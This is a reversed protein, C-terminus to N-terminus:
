SKRGSTLVFSSLSRLYKPRFLIGDIVNYIPLLRHVMSSAVYNYQLGSLYNTSVSFGVRRFVQAVQKAIIPRENETVGKASYFPSTRDRYLYMFPNLRNPDFAFFHGGPKLVRYVERACHSPDPLHHILGSLLVGGLSATPFPLAEVDGAVFKAGPFRERGMRLLGESLDLGICRYGQQQLLGTFAGSGCGMDIVPADESLNGAEIFADVIKENSAKSFVDYEEHRQAFENFFRKEKEKDQEM